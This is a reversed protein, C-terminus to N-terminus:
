FVVNPVYLPIIVVYVLVVEPSHVGILFYVVEGTRDAIEKKIKTKSFFVVEAFVEVFHGFHERVIEIKKGL